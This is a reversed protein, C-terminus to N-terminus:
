KNKFKKKLKLKYCVKLYLNILKYDITNDEIIKELLKLSEEYNNNNFQKLIDEYEIMYNKNYNLPAIKNSEDKKLNSSTNGTIDELMKVYKPIPFKKILEELSNKYEEGKECQALLKLKKDFLRESFNMKLFNDLFKVFKDIFM